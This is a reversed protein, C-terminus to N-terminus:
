LNGVSKNQNQRATARALRDKERQADQQEPTHQLRRKIQEQTLKERQAHQQEPSATTTKSLPHLHKLQLRLSPYM